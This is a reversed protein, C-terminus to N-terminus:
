NKQPWGCDSSYYYILRSHPPKIFRSDAPYSSEAASNDHTIKALVEVKHDCLCLSGSILFCLNVHFPIPIVNLDSANKILRKLIVTGPIPKYIAITSSNFYIVIPLLSSRLIVRIM